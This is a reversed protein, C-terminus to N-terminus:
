VGKNVNDLWSKISPISAYARYAAMLHPYKGLEEVTLYGTLIYDRLLGYIAADGWLPQGTKKSVSLFVKDTKFHKYLSDFKSLHKLLDGSKYNAKDDDTGTFTVKVWEDRSGQYEDAVLDQVYDKYDDGSTLNHVRALYRAVAIHQPHPKGNSYLIPASGAPNEGSEILRQKEKAWEDGMAFLEEQFEIGQSLMFFRTVGGRAGYPLLSLYKFTLPANNTITM